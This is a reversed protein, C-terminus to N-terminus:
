ESLIKSVPLYIKGTAAAHRNKRRLLLPLDIREELVAMLDAGDMLLLVTRPTSRTVVADSMFGNVSVFLGLTNDLKRIVKAAFSDIDAGSAPSQRWRAELLYHTGEFTFMGDIQEGQVQFSAKPDMDHLAFLDHLFVQFDYGRRQPDPAVVLKAYRMRLRQVLEKKAQVQGVFQAHQKRREEAAKREQELDAHSSYLERLGAVAVGALAVKRKGDELAALHTFDRMEAVAAMLDLLDDLYREQNSALHQILGTVISRKTDHWNIRSLAEPHTVTNTLFTRLDDKYWYVVSLAEQLAVIASASVRRNAHDNM